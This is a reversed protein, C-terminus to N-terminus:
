FTNLCPFEHANGDDGSGSRPDSSRDRASQRPPILAQHQMSLPGVRGPELSQLRDGHFTLAGAGIDGPARAVQRVCPGRGFKDARRARRESWNIRDHMGCAKSVPAIKGGQRALRQLPRKRHHGRRKVFQRRLRQPIQGSSRLSADDGDATKPGM